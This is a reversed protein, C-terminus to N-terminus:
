KPTGSPEGAFHDPSFVSVVVFGRHSANCTRGTGTGSSAEARGSIAPHALSAQRPTSMAIMKCSAIHSVEIDLYPTSEEGANSILAPLKFDPVDM